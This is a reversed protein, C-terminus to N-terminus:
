LKVGLGLILRIKPIPLCVFKLNTYPHLVILWIGVNATVELRFASPPQELRWQCPTPAYQPPRVVPQVAQKTILTQHRNFWFTRPLSYVFSSLCYVLRVSNQYM